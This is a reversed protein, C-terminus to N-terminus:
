LFAEAFLWNIEDIAAEKLLEQLEEYEANYADYM